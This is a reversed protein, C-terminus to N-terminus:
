WVVVVLVILVLASGLSGWVLGNELRSVDPARARRGAFFDEISELSFKRTEPVYLAVFVYGLVLIAGFLWFTGANGLPSALLPHFM